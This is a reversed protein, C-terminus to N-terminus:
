AVFALAGLPLAVWVIGIGYEVAQDFWMGHVSYPLAFLHNLLKPLSENLNLPTGGQGGDDSTWPGQGPWHIGLRPIDVRMDPWFPNHFVLYNRLYTVSATAMVLVAGGVVVAVAAGRRTHWHARLLLVAGVLGAIPVSVLALAKSGI